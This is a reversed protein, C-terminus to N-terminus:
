NLKSKFRNFIENFLMELTEFKEFMKPYNTEYRIKENNLENSFNAELWEIFQQTTTLLRGLQPHGPIIQELNEVPYYKTLKEKLKIEDLELELESHMKVSRKFCDECLERLQKENILNTM